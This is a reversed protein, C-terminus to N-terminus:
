DSHGRPLFTGGRALEENEMLGLTDLTGRTLERRFRLRQIQQEMETISAAIANPSARLVAIEAEAAELEREIIAIEGALLADTRQM